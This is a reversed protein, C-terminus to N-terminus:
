SGGFWNKGVGNTIYGIVKKGADSEVIRVRIHFKSNCLIMCAHHRPNLTFNSQSGMKKM